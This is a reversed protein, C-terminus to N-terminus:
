GPSCSETGCLDHWHRIGEWIETATEAFWFLERDEPDIVGEDVLFEMDFARRWYNEGVLVIPLPRIKRTQVLTLVEFLEDFTGYGGPFAVLAKARLLLHLKRLAFYHFRLCLEPTIYPNPYQEHPLSINLGISKAGADFAGRNAAEMIGPGGGTMIVLNSRTGDHASNAGVLRGFARAVDYYHSKAVTREAVGLKRAIERDGPNAQLAARLAEANNRAVAPEPIRTSGYVVVTDRIGHERLLLEAKLYEIQLRLGRVEDRALFDQDKEALRYGPSALIARVREPAEPDEEPPKPRHGPLPQKRRDPHPPQPIRSSLPVPRKDNM